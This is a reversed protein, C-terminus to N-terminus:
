SPGLDQGFRSWPGLERGRRVSIVRIGNDASFGPEVGIKRRYVQGDLGFILVIVGDESRRM